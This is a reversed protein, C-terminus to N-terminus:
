LRQRATALPQWEPLSISLTATGEHFTRLLRGFQAYSPPGGTLYEWVTGLLGDADLPQTTRLGALEVVPAGAAALLGALRVERAVAEAPTTPRAVRIVYRGAVDFVANNGLRLLKLEDHQIGALTLLRVAARRAQVETWM